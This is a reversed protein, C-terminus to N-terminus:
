LMVIFLVYDLQEAVCFFLMYFIMFYMVKNNPLAAIIADLSARFGMDLLRDAEDLVLIRVRKLAEAFGHTNQIHDM